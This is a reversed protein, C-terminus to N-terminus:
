WWESRVPVSFKIDYDVKTGGYDVYPKALHLRGAVNKADITKLELKSEEKITTWGAADFVDTSDAAGQDDIGLRIAHLKGANIEKLLSDPFTALNEDSLPLDSFIVHMYTQNALAYVHTLNTSKGNVVMKGDCTSKDTAFAPFACLSIFILLLTFQRAM